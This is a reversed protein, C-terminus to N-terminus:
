GHLVQIASNAKRTFFSEVSFLQKYVIRESYYVGRLRWNLTKQSIASTSLQEQYVLCLENMLEERYFKEDNLGYFELIPQFARYRYSKISGDCLKLESLEKLATNILQEIRVETM